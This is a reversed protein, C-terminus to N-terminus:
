CPVEATLEHSAAPMAKDSAQGIVQVVADTEPCFATLLGGYVAGTDIMIIQGRREVAPRPTHGVVVTGYRGDYGEWFPERVNLDPQGHEDFGAHTAVWGDGSYVFPLTSLRQKWERTLADGLQRYTEIALLDNREETSVAQLGEVLRQEHNGRLWTARGSDVLGWVLNICAAIGPGRNIVDGCFVLHDDTPLVSILRLLAEHCGHVDGIVWHHGWPSAM